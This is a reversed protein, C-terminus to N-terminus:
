FFPGPLVPGSRSQVFDTRYNLLFQAQSPLNLSPQISSSYLKGEDVECLLRKLGKDPPSTDPRLSTSSLGPYVLGQSSQDHTSNPDANGLGVRKLKLGALALEIHHMDAFLPLTQETDHEILLRNTLGDAQPSVLHFLLRANLVIADSVRDASLRMNSVTNRPPKAASKRRTPINERHALQM